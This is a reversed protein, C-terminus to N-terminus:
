EASPKAKGSDGAARDSPRSRTLCGLDVRVSTSSRCMDELAKANFIYRRNRTTSLYLSRGTTKEQM